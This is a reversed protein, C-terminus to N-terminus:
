ASALLARQVLSKALEVKYANDKMPTAGELAIESARKATAEDIKKGPGVKVADWTEFLDDIWRVGVGDYRRIVPRRSTDDVHAPARSV